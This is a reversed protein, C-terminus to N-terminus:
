RRSKRVKHQKRKSTKTKRMKRKKGGSVSYVYDVGTLTKWKALRDNLTENGSDATLGLGFLYQLDKELDERSATTEPPSYNTGTLNKYRKVTKKMTENDSNKTLGVSTLYTLNRNVNEITRTNTNTQTVLPPPNLVSNAISTITPIFESTRPITDKNNFVTRYLQIIQEDTQFNYIINVLNNIVEPFQGVVTILQNVFPQKLVAIFVYPLFGGLLNGYRQGFDQNTRYDGYKNGSLDELNLITTFLNSIRNISDQNYNFLISILFTPMVDTITPPIIISPVPALQPGM